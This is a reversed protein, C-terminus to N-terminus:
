FFQVDHIESLRQFETTPPILFVRKDSQLYYRNKYHIIYVENYKLGKIKLVNGDFLYVLKNQIPTSWFQVEVFKPSNAPNEVPKKNADFYLIPAEYKSIMKASSVNQSENEKENEKYAQYDDDDLMYDMSGEDAFLTDAAISDSAMSTGRDAPSQEYQHVIYKYITDKGASPVVEVAPNREPQVRLNLKKVIVFALILGVLLGVIVGLLLILGKKTAQNSQNEM